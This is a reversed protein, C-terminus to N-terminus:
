SKEAKAEFIVWGESLLYVFVPITVLGFGRFAFGSKM